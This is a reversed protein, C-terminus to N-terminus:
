YQCLRVSSGEYGRSREREGRGSRSPSLLIRLAEGAARSSRYTIVLKEIVECTEDVVSGSRLDVTARGGLGASGFFIFLLGDVRTGVKEDSTNVGTQGLILDATQKFLVAVDLGAADHAVRVGALRAAKTEDLHDGRLLSIGGLTTKM